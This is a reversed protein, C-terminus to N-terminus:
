LQQDLLVIFPLFLLPPPFLPPSDFCFDHFLVSCFLLFFLLLIFSYPAKGISHPTAWARDIAEVVAPTVKLDAAVLDKFPDYPLPASLVPVCRAKLQQTSCESSSSLSYSRIELGCELLIRNAGVIDTMHIKADRTHAMPANASSSDTGDSPPLDMEEEIIFLAGNKRGQQSTKANVPSFGGPSSSISYSHSHSNGTPTGHSSRNPPILDHLSSSFSPPESVGSFRGELLARQLGIRVVEGHSDLDIRQPLWNGASDVPM